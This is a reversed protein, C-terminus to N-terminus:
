SSYGLWRRVRGAVVPHNLYGYSMHPNLGFAGRFHNYIDPIDEIEGVLGYRLMGAFFPRVRRHLAVTEGRASVNVWRGINTPFQRAGKERAGKLGNRIFRTALPSGLTMLLEIRSDQGAERSLQWLSDWAIVSGLSHGIVLVRDGDQWAATLADILLQRIRDAVGDRNELYRHVDDLTLKLAPSAIFQSLWPFSDGFLHWARYLRLRLADAERKDQASPYPQELLREIGTRDLAIDRREDYLLSTWSVLGFNEPREYLWDAAAKTERGLAAALVRMLEPRHLGPEPKPKMGTIYIIRAKDM